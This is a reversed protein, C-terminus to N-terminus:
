HNAKGHETQSNKIATQSLPKKHLVVYKLILVDLERNIKKKHTIVTKLLIRITKQDFVPPVCCFLIEHVNQNQVVPAM